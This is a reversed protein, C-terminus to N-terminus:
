EVVSWQRSYKADIYQNTIKRSRGTGEEEQWTGARVMQKAALKSNLKFVGFHCIKRVLLLM